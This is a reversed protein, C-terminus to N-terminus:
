MDLVSPTATLAKVSDDWGKKGAETALADGKLNKNEKIWRDAEVVELPYTSAMLIQAVLSDPYLAISATLQDIQQQTYTQAPPANAPQQANADPPPAAADPPPTAADPPPASVYEQARLGAPIMALLLLAMIIKSIRKMYTYRDRFKAPM